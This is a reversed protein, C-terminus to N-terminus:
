DRRLPVQLDNLRRILEPMRHCRTKEKIRRLHTYVTNLSVARERAYDGPPTGSQLQTNITAIHSYYKIALQESDNELSGLTSSLSAVKGQLAFLDNTIEDVKQSVITETPAFYSDGTISAPDVDPTRAPKRYLKEKIEEPLPENTILLAPPEGAEQSFAPAPASMLCTACLLPVAVLGLVNRSLFSKPLTKSM